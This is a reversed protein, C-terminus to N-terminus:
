PLDAPGFCPRLTWRYFLTLQAVHIVVHPSGDTLADWLDNHLWPHGLVHHDGPGFFSRFWFSRHVIIYTRYTHMDIDINFFLSLLLSLSTPHFFSDWFWFRYQVVCKIYLWYWSIVGIVVWENGLFLLCKFFSKFFHMEAVSGLRMRGFSM